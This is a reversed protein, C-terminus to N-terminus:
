LFSPPSAEEPNPAASPVQPLRWIKVENTNNAEEKRHHSAAEAIYSGAGSRAMDFCGQAMVYWCNTMNSFCDLTRRTHNCFRAPVCGIRQDGYANLRELFENQRQEIHPRHIHDADADMCILTGVCVGNQFRIPNCPDPDGTCPDYLGSSDEGIKHCMLTAVKADILYASNRRDEGLIGAVFIVEHKAALVRLDELARQTSHQPPVSQLSYAGINFAEPLVILSNGIDWHEGSKREEQIREDMAKSLAEVPDLSTKQEFEVFHFFGLKEITASRM